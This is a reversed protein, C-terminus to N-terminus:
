AVAAWVVDEPLATLFFRFEKTEGEPASIHQYEELLKVVADVPCNAM